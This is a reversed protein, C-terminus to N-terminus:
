CFALQVQRSLFATVLCDFFLVWTVQKAAEWHMYCHWVSYQLDEFFRTHSLLAFLSSSTMEGRWLGGERCRRRAGGRAGNRRWPCDMPRPVPQQEGAAGAPLLVGTCEQLGLLGVALFVLVVQLSESMPQSARGPLRGKLTMVILLPTCEILSFCSVAKTCVTNQFESNLLWMSINSHRRFRIFDSFSGSGTLSARWNKSVLLLYFGLRPKHVWLQICKPKHNYYGNRSNCFRIIRGFKLIHSGLCTVRNRWRYFTRISLLYGLSLFSYPFEHLALVWYLTGIIKVRIILHFFTGKM